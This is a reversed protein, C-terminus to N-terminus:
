GSEDKRVIEKFVWEWGQHMARRLCFDRSDLTACFSLFNLTSMYVKSM